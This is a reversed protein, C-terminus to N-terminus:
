RSPFRSVTSNAIAPATVNSSINFSVHAVNSIVASSNTASYIDPATGNVVFITLNSPVGLGFLAAGVQWGYRFSSFVDTSITGTIANLQLLGALNTNPGGPFATSNVTTGCLVVLGPAFASHGPKFTTSGPASYGPLYGNAVSLAMSSNMAASSLVFDVNWGLGNKGVLSGSSPTSISVNLPASMQGGAVGVFALTALLGSTM